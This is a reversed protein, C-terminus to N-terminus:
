QTIASFYPRFDGFCDSFKSFEGCVALKALSILRKHNTNLEPGRLNASYGPVGLIGDFYTYQTIASFYPRFDGM